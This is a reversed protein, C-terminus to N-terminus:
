ENSSVVVLWVILGQAPAIVTPLQTGIASCFM